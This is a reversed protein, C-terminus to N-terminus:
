PFPTAELGTVIGEFVDNIMPGSLTLVVLFGCAFIIPIALAALPYIFNGRVGVNRVYDRAKFGSIIVVALNVPIILCAALGGTFVILLSELIILLFYGILAAAGIALNGAYFWGIGLVGFFGFLIEVILAISDTSDNKQITTVEVM